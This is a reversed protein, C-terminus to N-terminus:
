LCVAEPASLGQLQTSDCHARLSLVWHVVKLLLTLATCVRGERGQWDRLPNACANDDGNM